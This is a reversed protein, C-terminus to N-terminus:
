VLRRVRPYGASVGQVGDTLGPLADADHLRGPAGQEVVVIDVAHSYMGHLPEDEAGDLGLVNGGAAGFQGGPIRDAIGLSM